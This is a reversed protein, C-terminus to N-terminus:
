SDIRPASTANRVMEEGVRALIKVLGNILDYDIFREEPSLEDWPVLDNHIRAKDDRNGKVWGALWREACWRAHEMKALTEMDAAVPEQITRGAYEKLSVAKLGMAHLKYPLHDALARNANRYQEDLVEWPKEAPRREPPEKGQALIKARKAEQSDFYSQHFVEALEDLKPNLIANYNWIDEAMGFPYLRLQNKCLSGAGSEMCGVLFTRNSLSVAVPTSLDHLNRILRLGQVFNSIDDNDHCVICALLEGSATGERCIQRVRESTEPQDLSAGVVELDAVLSLNPYSHHLKAINRKAQEDVVQVLLKGGCPFHAILAAQLAVGAGTHGFGIVLLRPRQGSADLTLGALPLRTFADRASQGNIDVCRFSIKSEPSSAPLLDHQHLLARMDPNRIFVFCELPKKRDTRRCKEVFRSVMNAVKLNTLDDDDLAFIRRAKDVRARKLVAPDSLRGLIVPIGKRAIRTVLEEPADELIVVPKAGKQLADLTLPKALLGRGCIILHDRFFLLRLLQLERSSFHYVVSATALLFTLGGLWRGCHLQWPVPKDFFYPPNFLLMQLAYFAASIASAPVSEISKLYSLFGVFGFIYALLFACVLLWWKKRM